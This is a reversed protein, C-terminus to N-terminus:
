CFIKRRVRWLGQQSFYTPEDTLRDSILLLKAFSGQLFYNKHYSLKCVLKLTESLSLAPRLPGQTKKQEEPGRVLAM